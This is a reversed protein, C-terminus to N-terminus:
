VVQLLYKEIAEAVGDEYYPKAVYDAIKKVCDPANGMAVGVAAKEIMLQDLCSDGLSMVSEYGYGLKSFLADMAKTRKQRKPFLQMDTGAGEPISVFGMADLDRILASQMEKSVGYLNIKEVGTGNELFFDSPRALEIQRKQELFWVHHPPVPYNELHACVDKEMYILGNASIESYIRKGEFLRCLIASEEPTFLSQYIVERTERDVVRGGNATVWYRIRKEAEIQPPFMDECRGTCPIIEIGRDLADLLARKNRFSIYIQDRQLATGDFDLLVARIDM